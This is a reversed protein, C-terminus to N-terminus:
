GIGGYLWQSEAILLDTDYAIEQPQHYNSINCKKCIYEPSNFIEHECFACRKVSYIFKEQEVNYFYSYMAKDFSNMKHYITWRHWRKYDAFAYHAAEDTIHFLKSVDNQNKCGAYHIAMRPALINSAFFNAEQELEQTRNQSHKLIVHGLEHMLSFRIRGPPLDSNYCIKDKYNLADDSYKICYEKLKAPLSEYSHAKLKYFELIEFCDIPFSKVNCDIFVKLTASKIHEYDM